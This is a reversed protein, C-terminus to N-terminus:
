PAPFIHFRPPDPQACVQTFVQACLFSLLQPQDWLLDCPLPFLPWTKFAFEKSVKFCVKPVLVYRSYM